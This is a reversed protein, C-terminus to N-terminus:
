GDIKEKSMRDTGWTYYGNDKYEHEKPPNSIVTPESKPNFKKFSAVTGKWLSRKEGLFGVPTFILVIKREEMTVSLDDCGVGEGFWMQIAYNGAQKIEELKKFM